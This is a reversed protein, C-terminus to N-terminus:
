SITPKDEEKLHQITLDIAQVRDFECKQIAKEREKKLAVLDESEQNAKLM